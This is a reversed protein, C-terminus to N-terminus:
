RRCEVSEDSGQQERYGRLRLHKQPQALPNVGVCSLEVPPLPFFVETASNDRIRRQRKVYRM